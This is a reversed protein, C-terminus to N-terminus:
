RDDFQPPLSHRKLMCILMCACLCACLGVSVYIYMCGCMWATSNRRLPMARICAFVCARMCVCVYLGMCVWVCVCVDMYYGNDFQPPPAHRTHLCILVCAYLCV